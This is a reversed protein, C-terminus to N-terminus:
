ISGIKQYLSPLQNAELSRRLEEYRRKDYIKWFEEETYDSHGYLMKRGGLENLKAEIKALAEKYPNLGYVGFNLFPGNGYNPSLFHPSGKLPCLLNPYIGIEKKLFTFFAAANELPLYLDQILFSNKVSQAKQEHLRKYLRKSTFLSNFFLRFLFSPEHYVLRPPLSHTFLRRLAKAWSSIFCGMWFAGLDWRFIYDELSLVFRKENLRQIYWKRGWFEPPAKKDSLYGKIKLIRDPSLVVGELYDSDSEGFEEFSSLESIELEVSPKAKMLEIELGTVYGLTGYSGPIAQFLEDQPKLVLSEGKPTALELTRCIQDVQGFRFSSSELAAGSIAGGLTIGRFEPLVKPVLGKNFSAKFLKECTVGPEIWASEESVSLVKNLKRLNLPALETRYSNKRTSNSSLTPSSSTVLGKNKIIIELIEKVKRSHNEDHKFTLGQNM